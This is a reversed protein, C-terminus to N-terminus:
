AALRTGCSTCFRAGPAVISVGCHACRGTLYRGCASCYIADYEPRPGCERCERHSARYSFVATEIEDHLPARMGGVNEARMAKLARQTYRDKLQAYDSDSLKGTARDFEIERLASVATDKEEAGTLATTEITSKVAAFFVPYLVFALASVALLTGVVLAATM